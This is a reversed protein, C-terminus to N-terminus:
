NDFIFHFSLAVLLNYLSAIEFIFACFMFPTVIHSYQRTKMLIYIYIYVYLIYILSCEASWIFHRNWCLHWIINKYIKLLCVCKIKFDLNIIFDLSSYSDGVLHTSLRHRASGIFIWTHYEFPTKICFNKTFYSYETDSWM